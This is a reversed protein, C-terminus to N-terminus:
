NSKLEFFNCITNDQVRVTSIGNKKKRMTSDCSLKQAACNLRQYIKQRGKSFCFFSGIKISISWCKPSIGEVRLAVRDKSVPFLKTLNVSAKFTAHLM